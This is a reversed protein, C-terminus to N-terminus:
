RSPLTLLSAAAAGGPDHLHIADGQEIRFLVLERATKGRHHGLESWRVQRRQLRRSLLAHNQLVGERELMGRLRPRGELMAPAPASRVIGAPMSPTVMM